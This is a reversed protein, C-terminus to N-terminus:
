VAFTPPYYHLQDIFNRYMTRWGKFAPDTGLFHNHMITILTGGCDQCVRQYHQLEQLAQEPTYHQEYFSNAEMFCFPHVRLKTVTEEQLDYWYFPHAISARFGNVTGYGMSYEDTIGAAILRRYTEPLTFRLFHQRSRTIGSDTIKELLEKEQQILSHRDASQWSPHVGIQYRGAHRRILQKMAPQSPLIHKDYSKNRGAMLWFYVPHLQYRDHLEDLWDYSDFPDSAEGLLTRIRQLKPQRILGGLTRLWGKHRISYANDIDYTPEFRFSPAKIKMGPFHTMLAKGLAQAWQNILPEQLLQQQFVTSQTHPFRGYLDPTYPVYEEYRSLLYFAASFIDFPFQGGPRAFFYSLGDQQEWHIEQERIGSELMLGSPRINFRSNPYLITSYNIIPGQYDNFIDPDDTFQIGGGLLNSFIVEAIYALRPTVRDAFLLVM